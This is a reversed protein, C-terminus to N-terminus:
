EESSVGDNKDREVKLLAMMYSLLRKKKAPEMEDYECVFDWLDDQKTIVRQNTEDKEIKIEKQALIDGADMKKVMYMITIGTVEDGNIIARQIPAGGRHKPLLSGHVNIAKYTPANLLKEGVIQGYAATVILDPKKDLITQYDKRIKEPQFVEIEDGLLQPVIPGYGFLRISDGLLAVKKSM